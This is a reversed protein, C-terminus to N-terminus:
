SSYDNKISNLYSLGNANPGVTNLSSDVSLLKVKLTISTGTPVFILDDQLFGDGVSMEPTRNNFPNYLQAFRLLANVHNIKIEGTIANVYEGDANKIKNTMLYMLASADFVGGNIDIQSQITFISDFGEPYGFYRNLFLQFDSYLTRYRGLSLVNQRSMSLAFEVGSLSVENVPFSGLTSNYSTDIIGINSSDKVLGLKENFIRVDFKVQLTNTVDYQNINEIPTFVVNKIGQEIFFGGSANYAYFTGNYSADDALLVNPNVTIQPPNLPDWPM